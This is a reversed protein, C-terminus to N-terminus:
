ENTDESKLTAYHMKVAEYCECAVEKLGDVNEIKIHGRRYHILGAGQLMHATLSVTTRRVGLMEAMYEQTLDLQDTGALDRARLLWRALRSNLSHTVNCAASQQTQALLVQEHRAILRQLTPTQPLVERVANVDCCQCGGALQVVGRNLSVRGNVVAAAGIVGDHGVMATEIMEGTSLPVVLSIVAGSPFYVKEVLQQTDFLQNHQKLKFPTLLPSLIDRERTPLAELIQNAPM